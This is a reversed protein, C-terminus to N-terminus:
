RRKAGYRTREATYLAAFGWKRNANRTERKLRNRDYAKGDPAIRTVPNVGYWTGRQAAHYARRNKKSQKDLPIMKQM